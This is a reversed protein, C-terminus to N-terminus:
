VGWTYVSSTITLNCLLKKSTQILFPQPMLTPEIAHAWVKWKDSIQPIVLSACQKVHPARKLCSAVTTTAENAPLLYCTVLPKTPWMREKISTKILLVKCKRGRLATGTSGPMLWEDNENRCWRGVSISYFHYIHTHTLYNNLTWCLQDIKGGSCSGIYKRQGRKKWRQMKQVGGRSGATIVIISFVGM